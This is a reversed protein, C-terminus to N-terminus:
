AASASSSRWQYSCAAKVDEESIQFEDAVDEPSDGASVQEALVEARIGRVTAAGSSLEPDLVVPSAKGAPHLRLAELRGDRAFDVRDLYEVNVVSNIMYQGPRRGQVLLLLEDPLDAEDQLRVVLDRNEMLFPRYHALPYPVGFNERMAMIFPRLRQMPVKARYARLYQAEVVEGWTMDAHGLPEARLVPEYFRPGKRHGELWYLLTTPPIHLQRAAERAPMVPVDLM